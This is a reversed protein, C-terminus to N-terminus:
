HRARNEEAGVPDRQIVLAQRIESRRGRRDPGGTGGDVGNCVGVRGDLVEHVSVELGIWGCRRGVQERVDRGIREGREVARADQDIRDAAGDFGVSSLEGTPHLHHGRQGLRFVIGEETERPDM